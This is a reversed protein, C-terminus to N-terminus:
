SVLRKMLHDAASHLIQHDGSHLYRYSQPPHFGSEARLMALSPPDPLETPFGLTLATATPSGCLYTDFEARTLGLKRRHRRWILQATDTESDLLLAVGVVAMVPASAYLILQTQPPAAVRQRRLEVTKDGNLIASAFRPKLSLVLPRMETRDTNDGTATMM